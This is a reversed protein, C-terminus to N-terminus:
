PLWRGTRAVEIAVVGVGVLKQLAKLEFFLAVREVALKGAPLFLAQRQGHRQHVIGLDNEEVLRGGAEVRLHAAFDVVDDLLELLALFGDQEGRVVDFFGLPEAIAHGDDVVAFHDGHARRAFQLM